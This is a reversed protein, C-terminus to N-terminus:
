FSEIFKSVESPKVEVDEFPDLVRGEGYFLHYLLEGFIFYSTVANAPDCFYSIELVTSDTEIYGNFCKAQIETVSHIADIEDFFYVGNPFTVQSVKQKLVEFGESELGEVTKSPYDKLALDKVDSAVIIVVDDNITDIAILRDQRDAERAVFSAPLSIRVEESLLTDSKRQWCITSDLSNFTYDWCGVKLGNRYNGIRELQGNESYFKWRGDELGARLYGTQKPKTHEDDYYVSYQTIHSEQHSTKCGFLLAVSLLFLRYSLRM